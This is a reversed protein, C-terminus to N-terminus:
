RETVTAVVVLAWRDRTDPTHYYSNDPTMQFAAAMGLDLVGWRLLREIGILPEAIGETPAYADM